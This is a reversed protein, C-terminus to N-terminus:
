SAVCVAGAAASEGGVGLRNGQECVYLLLQVQLTGDCSGDHIHGHSWASVASAPVHLRGHCAPVPVRHRQGAM